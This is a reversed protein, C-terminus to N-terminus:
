AARSLRYPNHPSRAGGMWLQEVLRWVVWEPIPGPATGRFITNEGDRIEGGPAHLETQAFLFFALVRRPHQQARYLLYTWDLAEGMRQIISLADHWDPRGETLTVIKRYLTDEPGMVRFPMGHQDVIRARLMVEDDLTVGGRVEVIYDILVEDRWAKYLWSKETDATTFGIRALADLAPRLVERNLFIDFDKTRRQRGYLVVVTGGGIVYPIGIADLADCAERLVLFEEPGVVM